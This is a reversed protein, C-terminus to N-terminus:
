NRGQYDTYDDGIYDGIYGRKLLKSKLDYLLLLLLCLLILRQGPGEEINKEM